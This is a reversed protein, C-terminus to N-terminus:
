FIYTYSVSPVIPILGLTKFARHWGDTKSSYLILDNYNDKKITLPNIHCYANYISINWVGRRGNSYPKNINMGIDLRHYAPMRVNNREPYYGIGEIEDGYGSYGVSPADPFLSGPIDYNYMSLTLRNGTMYTWGANLDIKENLKYAVNINIKHRNDFKAPFTRGQNLGSFKRWNWLLGYGVSGTFAGAEKTLSFDIGYSWGKGTTLKDEWGMDPNLVSVGERYEVLNRMDKYWGEVSFYMSHPLVGYVGASYQDSQLPKFSATVPQWLDTPLNIYNSSIQQVYQTMRAYGVKMSYRSGLSVRVSVRPELSNFTHNQIRYVTGRVGLNMAAKDSINITNDIYASGETANIHPDGNSNDTDYYENKSHNHLGEPLYNHATLGLGARVMYNESFEGIWNMRVGVDKIANTTRSRNFGYTTDDDMDRQFEREQRYKSSYSTYFINASFTNKGAVYEFTGVVGWNGWSMRNTNEDFFSTESKSEDQVPKGDPGVVFSNSEGEFERLGMKLNDHGYYGVIYAMVHDNWRHDIRANFDTFNYGAIHKKGNKKDVANMIALAPVSVLDIWSRRMGVAYATKGSTIPGTLFLNASLLGVSARGHFNEFDPRKMLIDTISSIRGGYRAPFSSKYFDARSVTAVNFSSFIGGLHSVHYLPLGQYLFLNQDNDGGRVYLGTFGEVGQAVGPQTQLTKVIDPEGFIVPLSNIATESLSVRGMEPANLNREAGFGKVIVEKLKYTSDAMSVTNGSQAFALTVSATMAGAMLMRRVETM